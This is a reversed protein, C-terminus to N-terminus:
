ISVSDQSQSAIIPLQSKMDQNDLLHEVMLITLRSWNTLPTLMGLNLDKGLGNWM